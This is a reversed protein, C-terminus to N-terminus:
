QSKPEVLQLMKLKNSFHLTQANRNRELEETTQEKPKKKCCRCCQVLRFIFSFVFRLLLLVISYIVIVQIYFNNSVGQVIEPSSTSAKDIVNLFYAFAANSITWVILWRTRFGKKEEEQEIEKATLEQPRNGWTCDHTNCISFITLINSYTSIMLTFHIMYSFVKFEGHLMPTIVFIMATVFVVIPPWSTQDSFLDLIGFLMTVCIIIITFAAFFLKMINFYRMSPNPDNDSMSLFFVTALMVIYFVILFSHLLDLDSGTEEKLLDSTKRLLVSFALFFGGVMLWSFIVNLTQYIIYPTFCFWVRWFSHKSNRLRHFQRITNILAFWTGNIWRRRQLILKVTTDPVDTEAKAQKIFKLVYPKDPHCVLALCLIRDEALYINSYYASMDQPHTFSHFYDEDIPSGKLAEWRYASFAGPLVTVFGTLSEIPKDLIHAFKYEVYQAGTVINVTECSALMPIIEGCCGAILNDHEMAEYLKFLSDAHPKTGVDLLMVYKPQLMECFGKFFWLHTNLKKKNLQKICWILKLEHSDNSPTIAKTEDNYDFYKYNQEFCHLVEPDGDARGEEALSERLKQGCAKILKHNLTEEVYKRRNPDPPAPPAGASHSAVATATHEPPFADNFYEYIDDVSCFEDFFEKYTVIPSDARDPEKKGEYYVTKLFPIIGDCIVVCGVNKGKFHELNDTVGKLTNLVEESKENYMTIVILFDCGILSTLVPCMDEVNRPDNRVKVISMGDTYHLALHGDKMVTAKDLRLPYYKYPKSSDPSNPLSNSLDAM